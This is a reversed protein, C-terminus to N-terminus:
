KEMQESTGLKSQFYQLVKMVREVEQRVEEEAKKLQEVLDSSIHEPIVKESSEAEEWM